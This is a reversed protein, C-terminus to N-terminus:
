GNSANNYQTLEETEFAELFSNDDRTLTVQVQFFENREKNYIGFPAQKVHLLKPNEILMPLMVIVSLKLEQIDSNSLEIQPYAM